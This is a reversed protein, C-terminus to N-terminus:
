KILNIFLNKDKLQKLGNDKDKAVVQKIQKYINTPTFASLTTVPSIKQCECLLGDNYLSLYPSLMSLEKVKEQVDKSILMKVFKDAYAKRIQSKSTVSVYQFLDNYGNLPIVNVSINKAIIRNADRLTGLLIENSNTAFDYFANVPSKVSIKKASYGSAYFATLPSTLESDAVTIKDFLKVNEILTHSFIYYGSMLYPVAYTKGNLKCADSVSESIESMGSLNVGTGYSILDPLDKELEMNIASITLQRVNILVGPNEKEFQRVVSLIFQKRSWTGGEFTDVHWLNLIGKFSSNDENFDKEGIKNVGITFGFLTIAIAIIFLIIRQVTKRKSM